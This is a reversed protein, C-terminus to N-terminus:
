QVFVSSLFGVWSLACLAVYFHWLTRRGSFPLKLMEPTIDRLENPLISVLLKRREDRPQEVFLDSLGDYLEPYFDIGTISVMVAPWHGHQSAILESRGNSILSQYHRKTSWVQQRFVIAQLVAVFLEGFAILLLLTRPRGALLHEITWIWQGAFAFFTMNLLLPDPNHECFSRFIWALVALVAVVALFGLPGIASTLAAM